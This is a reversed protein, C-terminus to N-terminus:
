RCGAAQLEKDVAEADPGRGAERSHPAGRRGHSRPRSVQPGKPPVKIGRHSSAEWGDTGTLKDTKRFRYGERHVIKAGKVEVSGSWSKPDTDTLGLEILVATPPTEAKAKAAWELVLLKGPKEPALAAVGVMIALASAAVVCHQRKM